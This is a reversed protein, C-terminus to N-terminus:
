GYYDELRKGVLDLEEETLLREKYTNSWLKIIQKIDRSLSIMEKKMGDVGYFAAKYDSLQVDVSFAIMTDTRLPYMRTECIDNSFAFHKTIDIWGYIALRKVRIQSVDDFIEVNKLWYKIDRKSVGQGVLRNVANDLFLYAFCSAPHMKNPWKADLTLPATILGFIGGIAERRTLDM